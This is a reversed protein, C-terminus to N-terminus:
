SHVHKGASTYMRTELDCKWIQQSARMPQMVRELVKGCGEVECHRVVDCEHISHQIEVEHGDECKYVYQAM